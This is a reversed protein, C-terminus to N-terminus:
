LGATAPANAPDNAHAIVAGLATAVETKLEPLQAKVSDTAVKVMDDTGHLTGSLAATAVAEGTTTIVHEAIPTALGFILSLLNEIKDRITTFTSM